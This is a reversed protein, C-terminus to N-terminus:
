VNYGDNVFEVSKAWEFIKDEYKEAKSARTCFQVMWFADDEKYAFCTYKYEINDIEKVYSFYVLGDKEYIEADVSNVIQSLRAYEKVTSSAHVGMDVFKDELFFVSVNSANYTAEGKSDSDKDFDKNLTIRLDNVAIEAPTNEQIMDVARPVGIGIILGLIVAVTLVVRGRKKAAARFETAEASENNNFRFANGVSNNYKHKGSLNIDYEGEPLVYMDNCYEKSSKGIIAFLKASKETVEFTEEGGNKIEGLYRCSVGRIVLDCCSEDEIYFKTKNLCAVFSKERTITLRRM